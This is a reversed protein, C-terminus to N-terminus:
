YGCKATAVGLPWGLLWVYYGCRTAVGLLWVWYGCRTAVGLLWM